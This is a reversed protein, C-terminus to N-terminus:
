GQVWDCDGIVIVTVLVVERGLAVESWIKLAKTLVIGFLRLSLLLPFPVLLPPPLAEFFTLNDQGVLM